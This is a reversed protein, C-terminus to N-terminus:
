NGGSHSYGLRSRLQGCGAEIDQGRSQRVTVKLHYKKLETMFALIDAPSPARYEKSATHNAPILNIHCNQDKLLEGLARAESFTDNIGQFLVYEYTVRRGTKEFYERCATIVEAIPYKRNLPILRSRLADTGAHLSVALGVQLKEDALKQIGPVIGATSITINRAGINMGDPSNIMRIAKLVQDYNAMPEGMGMFVINTLTSYKNYNQEVYRNRMIKAFYLVQDIIEGASLNRQFGGQGTACFPCGIACGVQSSVCVTGRFGQGSSRGYIMLASEVTQGDNLRFLSKISGDTSERSAIVELSHLPYKGSLENRLKGPLETFEDWSSALNHYLRHTIQRARYSPYNLGTVLSELDDSSFDTIGKKIKQKM